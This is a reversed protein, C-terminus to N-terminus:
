GGKIRKELVEIAEPFETADPRIMLVMKRSKWVKEGVIMRQIQHHMAPGTTGYCIYQDGRSDSQKKIKYGKHSFVPVDGNPTAWLIQQKNVMFMSNQEPTVAIIIGQRKYISLLIMVGYVAALTLGCVSLFAWPADMGALYVILEGLLFGVCIYKMSRNVPSSNTQQMATGYILVCMHATDGAETFLKM